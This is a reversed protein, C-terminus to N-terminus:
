SLEVPAEHTAWLGCRPKCLMNFMLVNGMFIQIELKEKFILFSPLLPCTNELPLVERSSFLPWGNLSARVRWGFWWM